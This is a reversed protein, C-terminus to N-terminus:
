AYASGAGDKPDAVRHAPLVDRGRGASVLLAILHHRVGRSLAAAAAPREGAAIDHPTLTPLDNFQPGDLWPHDLM